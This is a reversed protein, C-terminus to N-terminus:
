ANNAADITEFIVYGRHNRTTNPFIQLLEVEDSLTNEICFYIIDTLYELFPLM